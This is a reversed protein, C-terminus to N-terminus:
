RGSHSGVFFFFFFSFFFAEESILSLSEYDPFFWLSLRKASVMLLVLFAFLIVLLRCLRPGM